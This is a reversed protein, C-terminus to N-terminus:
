AKWPSIIVPTDHAHRGRRCPGQQSILVLLDGARWPRGLAARGQAECTAESQCEHMQVVVIEGPPILEQALRRVATLMTRASM